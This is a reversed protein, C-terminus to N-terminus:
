FQKRIMSTYKVDNENILKLERNKILELYEALEKNVREKKDSAIQKRGVATAAKFTAEDDSGSSWAVDSNDALDTEILSSNRINMRTLRELNNEHQAQQGTKSKAKIKEAKGLLRQYFAEFKSKKSQKKIDNSQADNTALMQRTEVGTEDIESISAFNIRKKPKTQSVPLKNFSQRSRFSQNDLRHYPLPPDFSRFTVRKGNLAFYSRNENVITAFKKNSIMGTKTENTGSKNLDYSM